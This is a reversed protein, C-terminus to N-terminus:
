GIHVLAEETQQLKEYLDQLETNIEEKQHKSVSNSNAEELLRSIARKLDLIYIEKNQNKLM